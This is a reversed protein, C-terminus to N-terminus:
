GSIAVSSNTEGFVTLDWAYESNRLSPAEDRLWATMRDRSSARSSPYYRRRDWRSAAREPGSIARAAAASWAPGFTRCHQDPATGPIARQTYTDAGGAGLAVTVV